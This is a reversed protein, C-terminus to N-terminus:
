RRKFELTIVGVLGTLTGSFDLGIKNGSAINVAGATSSLTATQTTNATATLDISANLLEICTAGASAGPAVANATVKRIAVAASTSGVVSHNENVSVLTYAADATFVWTDVSSATIPINIIVRDVAPALRIIKVFDGSTTTANLAKGLRKGQVTATVLGSADPYVDAGATIAGSATYTGVEGDFTQNVALQEGSVKAALSVGLDEDAAGALVATAGSLTVRRAEAVTGGAAISYTAMASANSTVALVMALLLSRFLTKM